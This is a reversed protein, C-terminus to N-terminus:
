DLAAEAKEKSATAQKLVQELQKANIPQTALLPENEEIMHNAEVAQKEIQARQAAIEELTQKLANLDEKAKKLEEEAAVLIQEDPETAQITSDEGSKAKVVISSKMDTGLNSRTQSEIATPVFKEPEPTILYSEMDKQVEDATKRHGKTLPSPNEMEVVQVQTDSETSEKRGDEVSVISVPTATHQIERPDDGSDQKKVAFEEIETSDQEPLKSESQPQAAEQVVSAVSALDENAKIAKMSVPSAEPGQAAAEANRERKIKQEIEQLSAVKREIKGIEAM